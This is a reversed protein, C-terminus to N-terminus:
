GGPAEPTDALRQPRLRSSLGTDGSRVDWHTSVSVRTIFLSNQAHTGSHETGPLFCTPPPPVPTGALASGKKPVDVKLPSLRVHTGKGGTVEEVGAGM